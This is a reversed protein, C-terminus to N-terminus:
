FIHVAYKPAIPATIELFFCNIAEEVKGFVLSFDRGLPIVPYFSGTRKFFPESPSIVVREGIRAIGGCSMADDLFFKQKIEGFFIQEFLAFLRLLPLLYQVALFFEGIPLLLM